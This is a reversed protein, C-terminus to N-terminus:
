ADLASLDACACENLACLRQAAAEIGRRLAPTGRAGSEPWLARVLLVGRQRVAEIRGVFREGRLVPLVYHGYRRKEM